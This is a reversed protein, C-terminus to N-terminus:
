VRAPWNDDVAPQCVRMPLKLNGPQSYDKFLVAIKVFLCKPDGNRAIGFEQKVAITEDATWFSGFDRM